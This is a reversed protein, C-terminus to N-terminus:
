DHSYESVEIGARTVIVQVHDGFCERLIDDSEDLQKGLAKLDAALAKREPTENQYTLSWADIGYDDEDEDHGNEAGVEKLTVRAENVGFVCEDGDNFYPTYQTWRVSEVEPFKTLFDKLLDAIAAQGLEKVAAQYAAKADLIKQFGPNM